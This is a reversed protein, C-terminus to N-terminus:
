GGHKKEINRVEVFKRKAAAKVRSYLKKNTPTPSKKSKVQDATKQKQIAKAFSKKSM